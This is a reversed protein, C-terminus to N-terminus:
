MYITKSRIQNNNCYEIIYVGKTLGPLYLTGFFVGSFSQTHILRNDLSYIRITTENDNPFLLEMYVNTNTNYLKKIEFYDAASGTNVSIIKSQTKAGNYDTQVLKYYIISSPMTNNDYYEYTHIESSTGAGNITAIETFDNGNYSQYLSFYENNTESSTEWTLHVTANSSMAAEFHTLEIPLWNSFDQIFEDQTDYTRIKLPCSAVMLDNTLLNESDPSVYIYGQKEIGDCNQIAIVGLGTPDGAFDTTVIQGLAHLTMTGPSADGLIGILEGPALYLNGKDYPAKTDIVEVQSSNQFYINGGSDDTYITLDAEYIILKGDIEGDV